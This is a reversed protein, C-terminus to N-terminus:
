EVSIHLYFNTDFYDIMGDSDDYNYTNIFKKIDLLTQHTKMSYLRYGKLKIKDNLLEEIRKKYEEPSLQNVNNMIIRMSQTQNFENMLDEETKALEITNADIEIDLAKFYNNRRIRVSTKLDKYNDKIYKRAIKAIEKIDLDWDFNEGVWGNRTYLQKM